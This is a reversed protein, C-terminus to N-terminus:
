QRQLFSQVIAPIGYALLGIAIAIVAYLLKSSAGKVKEPDGAATLYSFAALIIFITAFIWFAIAVWTLIARLLNLWGSVQQLGSPGQYPPPPVPNINVQAFAFFPVLSVLAISGSAAAIKLAQKM